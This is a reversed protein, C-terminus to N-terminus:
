KEAHFDAEKIEEALAKLAEDLSHAREKKAYLNALLGALVVVKKVCPTGAEDPVGTQGIRLLRGDIQILNAPNTPYASTVLSKLGQLNYGLSWQVPGVVIPYAGGHAEVDWTEINVAPRGPGIEYLQHRRLESDQAFRRCLRDRHATDKAVVFVGGVLVLERVVSTMASSVAEYALEAARAWADVSPRRNTGGLGAPVLTRYEDLEAADFEVNEKAVSLQVGLDVIQRIMTNAAVYVNRQNVPFPVLPEVYKLLLSMDSTTVPTASLLAFDDCARVLSVAAATRQTTKSMARHVEDYILYTDAAEALLQDVCLRVHDQEIINVTYPLLRDTLRVRKTKGDIEFLHREANPEGANPWVVAARFGFRAIELMISKFASQPLVYLVYRPLRNEALLRKLHQLAIATKGQGTPIWLFNGKFGAETRAMMRMLASNQHSLLNRHPFADYHPLVARSEISEIWAAQLDTDQDRTLARRIDAQLQWLLLPRDVIFAALEGPKRRLAKPYLLSLRVLLHFAYFDDSHLPAETGTGDRGLRPMAVTDGAEKFAGIYLLARRLVSAPTDSLLATFGAVASKDMCVSDPFQLYVFLEMHARLGVDAPLAFKHGITEKTRRAESWEVWHDHEDAIEYKGNRLRVKAERLASCPTKLATARRTATLKEQAYGQLAELLEPEIRYRQNVMDATKEVAEETAQWTSAKARESLVAGLAARQTRGIGTKVPDAIVNINSLDEPDVTAIFFRRDLFRQRLPLHGLMGALWADELEHELVCVSDPLPDVTYGMDAVDVRRAAYCLAQAKQTARRFEEEGADSPVLSRQRWNLGTNQEFLKVFFAAYSPTRKDRHRVVFEPDFAYAIQTYWHQDFCHWIPMFDPPQRNTPVEVRLTENREMRYAINRFMRLDGPLSRIEDLLASVMRMRVAAPRNNLCGNILTWGDTFKYPRAASAANPSADVLTYARRRLLAFAHRFADVLLGRDPHWELGYYRILLTAAALRLTIPTEDEEVYADEVSIVMLRKLFAESGRVFTQTDPNFSGKHSYLAVMTYALVRETPAVMTYALVRETPETDDPLPDFFIRRAGYRILKQLLSKLAGATFNELKREVFQNYAAELEAVSAFRYPEHLAEFAAHLADAKLLAPRLDSSVVIALRQQLMAGRIMSTTDPLMLSLQLAARDAPLEEPVADSTFGAEGDVLDIYLTQPAVTRSTELPLKHQWMDSNFMLVSNMDVADAVADHLKKASIGGVSMAEDFVDPPVKRLYDDKEDRSGPDLIRVRLSHGLRRVLDRELSPTTHKQMWKEIEETSMGKFRPVRQQLNRLLQGLLDPDARYNAVEDYRVGLPLFEGELVEMVMGTYFKLRFAVLVDGKQLGAVSVPMSQVVHPAEKEGPVRDEATRQKKTQPM